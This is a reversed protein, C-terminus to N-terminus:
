RGDEAIGVFLDTTTRGDAAPARYVELDVGTRTAGAQEAQRGLMELAAPIAAYPGVVTHNLYRGSPTELEQMGEPMFVASEDVPVGLSYRAPEQRRDVVGVSVVGPTKSSLGAELRLTLTVWLQRVQHDLAPDVPPLVALRYAPLEVLPLTTV